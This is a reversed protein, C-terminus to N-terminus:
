IERISREPDVDLSYDIEPMRFGFMQYFDDWYGAVDTLVAVNETNIKDWLERVEEQVDDKLELDDLRLLGAADFTPAGTCLDEGWLRFMQEICGEHLGKEKMVKYLIALYLPVIPLAASSQTVVAKNVSVFSTVGAFRSSIEKATKHLHKKAQGISGEHYIPYTLEPGIYSYAVTVAAPTLVGATFLADIWDMWDEGGMVKVTDIIEDQTAAEITVPVIENTRLDITKNTYASGTTKLVSSYSQGDATTRRPSALSYVVLDAQGWDQRILEVVKKKMEQSFADGNLTKAYIGRETAAEELVATNYWGASATRTGAAPKDFIVGITAANGSFAAAIRTALGYGTSAGLILVKKAGETKPQTDIYAIQRRVNAECGVPHATTCLFGRVKPEIIM